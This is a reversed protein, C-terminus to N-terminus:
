TSTAKLDLDIQYLMGLQLVPHPPLLLSTDEDSCIMMDFHSIYKNEEGLPVNWGETMGLHTKYKKKCKKLM